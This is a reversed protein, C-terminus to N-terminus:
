VVADLALQEDEDFVIDLIAAHRPHDSIGHLYALESIFPDASKM